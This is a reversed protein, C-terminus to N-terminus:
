EYLQSGKPLHIGAGTSRVIDRTRNPIHELEKIWQELDKERISFGHIRTYTRIIQPMANVYNSHRYADKLPKHLAECIETSYQPLSGYKSIQDAFYSILHIKPFNYNARSTLVDHVLEQTELQLEQMIKQRKSLTKSQSSDSALLKSHEERLDKFAEKAAAKVAKSARFRLFLDKFTHFDRLYDKMSEITGPTHVRYQAMLIFNTLYRICLIANHCLVKHRNAMAPSNSTRSRAATFAALLAHCLNRM